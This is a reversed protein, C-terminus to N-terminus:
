GGPSCNDIAPCIQQANCREESSARLLLLSIACNTAQLPTSNSQRVLDRTTKRKMANQGRGTVVAVAGPGDSSLQRTGSWLLRELFRVCCVGWTVSLRSNLQARSLWVV